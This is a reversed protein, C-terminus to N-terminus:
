SLPAQIYVASHVVPESLRQGAPRVDVASTGPHTGPVGLPEAVCLMSRQAHVTHVFRCAHHGNHDRVGWM